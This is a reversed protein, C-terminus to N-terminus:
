QYRRRLTFMGAWVVVVTIGALIALNTGVDGWGASYNAVRSVTDTLYYSPIVKAWNSILGPIAVGFGPIALVIIILIGWGTVSMVDRTLSALLFGAGVVMVSGIILTTLIILPQHNLGGVLAMFLITQVFALGVGLVGKAIFLDATRMPTVLLAQATGQEIEVSILSALTMIELLLLFVALLPRLRDRITIQNGLMDPGLIEETVEFNLAQGTQAYSLEKVLSVVAASVEPPLDSAYYVTIEPKGGSMWVDVIDPPLAVAVPYDGDLVAQKLAEESPYIEVEAGEQNILMEFAPPLAPAYMALSIKEDAKSPLVFYIGVYFVLGVITMLMYFRNNMFLSFDKKLLARIIRANM